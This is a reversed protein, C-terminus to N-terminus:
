EVRRGIWIRAFEAVVPIKPFIPLGPINIPEIATHYL